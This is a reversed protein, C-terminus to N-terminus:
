RDISYMPRDKRAGAQGVPRDSRRESSRQESGRPQGCAECRGDKEQGARERLTKEHARQSACEIDSLRRREDLGHNARDRAYRAEHGRMEQARTREGSKSAAKVVVAPSIKAPVSPKHIQPKSTTRM